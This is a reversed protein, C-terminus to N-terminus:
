DDPLFARGRIPQVGLPSFFNPMAVMGPVREAAARGTMTFNVRHLATMQQFSQSQSQFYLFDGASFPAQALNPQSEWFWVLRDPEPYPLPRVLVANVISFIATNAGIGLALALLAITTLGRSRGLMRVGFRLDQWISRM